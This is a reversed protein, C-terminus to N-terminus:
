YSHFSCILCHCFLFCVMGSALHKLYLYGEREEWVGFELAEIGMEECLSRTSHCHVPADSAPHQFGHRRHISPTIPNTPRKKTFNTSKSTTILFPILRLLKLLRKDYTEELNPNKNNRPQSPWSLQHQRLGLPDIQKSTRTASV